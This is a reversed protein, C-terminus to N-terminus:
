WDIDLHANQGFVIVKKAGSPIGLADRLEDETPAPEVTPTDDAPPEESPACAVGAVTAVLAALASSRM